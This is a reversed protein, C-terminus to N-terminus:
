LREVRALASGSLGLSSPTVVQDTRSSYPVGVVPAESRVARSPLATWLQCELVGRTRVQICPSVTIIVLRRTATRHLAINASPSGDKALKAMGSTQLLEARPAHM